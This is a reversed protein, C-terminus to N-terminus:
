RFLTLEWNGTYHVIITGPLNAMFM